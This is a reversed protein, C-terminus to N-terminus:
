RPLGLVREALINKMIEDSGGGLRYGPAGLLVSTWSYTGWEGTDAVLKAGLVSAAFDGLRMLNRALALKNMSLEPGPTGGAAVRAQMRRQNYLAVRLHVVLDALRQRLVPDADRCEHRLLAVLRDVRLLGVGAFASHGMASREFGLTTLAVKWGEGVEGIRDRDPVFVGDLFVENFSAGGTMQRLPRVTVGPAHMDVVFATLNGYRPESATRCVIEGIDALHAGSTWVKQGTIRWGDGERAARTAISALDSGADPESFLQCAILDGRHLAPLLRRRQEETGHRLITPAIMGLSVILM